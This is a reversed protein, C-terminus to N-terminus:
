SRSAGSADWGRAPARLWAAIMAAAKSDCLRPDLALDGGAQPLKGMSYDFYAQRAGFARSLRDTWGFFRTRYPAILASVEYQRLLREYEEAEVAGAVFVNGPAMVALDDVCAGLVVVRATAAAKSLVRGLAVVLRDALPDPAPMVVALVGGRALPADPARAPAVDALGPEIVFLDGFFQRAFAEAMRDQPRIARARSLLKRKRALHAGGGDARASFAGAACAPCPAPDDPAPCAGGAPQRL